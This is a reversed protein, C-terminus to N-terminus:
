NSSSLLKDLDAATAPTTPDVWQDVPPMPGNGFRDIINMWTSRSEETFPIKYMPISDKVFKAFAADSLSDVHYPSTTLVSVLEEFNAPDNMWIITKAFARRLGDITKPNKEVWDTKSWMQSGSFDSNIALVEAPYNSLPSTKNMFSFLLPYGSDTLTATPVDSLCGANANGSSMAAGAAQGSGTAVFTYDGPKLGAGNLVIECMAQEAGGIALVAITSGKLQAISNPWQTETMSKAGVIATYPGKYGSTAQLKQGDEILPQVNFPSLLAVDISGSQLANTAQVGTSVDVNEVKLGEKDFNGLHETLYNLYFSGAAYNQLRVTGDDASSGTTSSCAVATTVALGAISLTAIM